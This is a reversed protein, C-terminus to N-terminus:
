YEPFGIYSARPAAMFEKLDSSAKPPIRPIFILCHFGTYSSFGKAVTELKM